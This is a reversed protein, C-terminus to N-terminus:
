AMGLFYRLIQLVWLTEFFQKLVQFIAISKISSEDKVLTQLPVFNINETINRSIIM